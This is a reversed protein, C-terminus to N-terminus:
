PAGSEECLEEPLPQASLLQELAPALADAVAASAWGAGAMPLPAGLRISVKRGAPRTCQCM